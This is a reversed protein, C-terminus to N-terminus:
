GQKQGAPIEGNIRELDEIKNINTFTKLSPDFKRLDEVPVYRTNISRIM